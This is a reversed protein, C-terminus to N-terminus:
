ERDNRAAAVISTMLLACGLLTMASPAEGFLIYALITSGIPEGLLMIAVVGASFYGLAWNYSSHGALQSLLAMGWFAQWTAGSFGTIELGLLLVAIWMAVAATGYCLAVYPSVSLKKRVEKGCIIYAAAAMAGAVALADGILAEGSFALDGYGVIAAGLMSLLICLWMARTPREGRFCGFLAVWIPITNVLVVSSAVTTYDLSSIWTGFHVALFIGSLLTLAIDRRGLAAFERRHFLMAYPVLILSALGLRYASKVLAHADAMRAFIAGSSVGMVGVALVALVICRNQRSSILQGDGSERCWAQEVM